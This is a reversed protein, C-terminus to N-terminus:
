SRTDVRPEVTQTRNMRALRQIRAKQCHDGQGNELDWLDVFVRGRRLSLGYDFAEELSDLTPEGFLGAKKLEEMAGNGARTPIIACCEGGVDFAFEVSAKAWQLGQAETMFPPRLLVFARVSIGRKILRETAREFDQLTMHKNLKKLTDAHATELGIAVQLDPELMQAWRFCRDGIMKPHCEVIVQAFPAMLQAISDDDAPPIAKADFFNGSNYLKVAQVPPLAKLAHTIQRPIIGPPLPEDLTNKWLDCMLCKLPCERNTLFITAVDLLRGHRDPEQEHLFAYPRDPQVANKPPRRAVIWADSVPSDADPSIM